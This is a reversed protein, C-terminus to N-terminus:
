AISDEEVFSLLTVRNRGLSKSEYLAIDARKYAEKASDSIETAGASVTISLESTINIATRLRNLVIDAEKLETHPMIIAFEEGGIRSIIDTERLHLELCRAVEVLTEDGKGHGHTDNVRKFHDIDILALTSPESDGYRKSRMAQARMESDFKRRNWLSTLPDKESLERLRNELEKRHSIDVFSAVYFQIIGKNDKVTQIRLIETILSGDKRKNVVEGEWLGRDELIKWMNMYFQQQHKGSSFLSPPYGQVDELTYGSIRTFESNVQIIRNNRDTIVVASMGNMAARAIKSDLSNKHHNHNWSVFTFTLLLLIVSIFAAQTYIGQRSEARLASAVENPTKIFFILQDINEAENVQMSTYSIWHGQDKVTGSPRLQISRWLHPYQIAINSDKHANILNGLLPDGETSMLYFGRENAVNPLNAHNRKYALGQYIRLLDLNAIFYGKREGNVTIPYIARYAPIHPIVLQGNDEELDIGFYGTENEKLTQAHVFYDRHAKNQLRDPEVIEIIRSNSNIRVVEMGTNDLFRLQSYYGQTRAILLWFEELADLNQRTPDSVTQNLLGNNALYNLSASIKQLSTHLEVKSYELKNRNLQEVFHQTQQEISSLQSYFYLFPVFSLVCLVTFFQIIFKSSRRRM